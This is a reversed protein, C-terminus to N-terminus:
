ACPGMDDLCDGVPGLAPKNHKRYVLRGTTGQIAATAEALAVVPRDHLLWILGTEDYRSLRRYTPAPRPPVAHLGFLEHATWGLAQAQAGWTTLFSDADQIAQQWRDHEILQPRQSRLGAFAQTYPRRDHDTRLLEIIDPKYRRLEELVSPPPESAADILLGDGDLTLEVGAGRAIRLAEAASM